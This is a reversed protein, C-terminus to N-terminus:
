ETEGTLRWRELVCTQEGTDNDIGLRLLFRSKGALLGTLEFSGEEDKAPLLWTEGNDLSVRLELRGRSWVRCKMDRIKLEAATKLKYVIEGQTDPALDLGWQGRTFGSFERARWTRGDSARMYDNVDFPGPGALVFPSLMLEAAEPMPIGLDTHLKVYADAAAVAEKRDAPNGRNYYSRISTYASVLLRTVRLCSEDRKVRALRLEDDAVKERAVAVTELADAIVRSPYLDLINDLAVEHTGHKAVTRMHEEMGEYASRMDAAAAGFYAAYFEDLLDDVSRGWGTRFTLWMLTDTGVDRSMYESGDGSIGLGAYYSLEKDLRNFMTYPGPFWGYYDYTWAKSLMSMWREVNQRYAIADAHDETKPRIQDMWSKTNANASCITGALNPNIALDREPAEFADGYVLFCLGKGPHIDNVRELIRNAVTVIRTAVNGMAECPGCECHRNGDNDSFSAYDVTPNDRFYQIFYETAVEVARPNSLCAQYRHATVEPHRRGDRFCALDPEKTLLEPTYIRYWNHYYYARIGGGRNRKFWLDMDVSEAMSEDELSPGLPRPSSYWPSRLELSPKLVEYGEGLSLKVTSRDPIHEGIRGPTFWHCGLHDELLGYVANRVGETRPAALVVRKGDAVLLYGDPWFMSQDALDVPLKLGKPPTGIHIPVGVAQSQDTVIPVTAGSMRKFHYALDEATTRLADADPGALVITCRREGSEVLVTKQVQEVM